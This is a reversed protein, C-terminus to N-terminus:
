NKQGGGGVVDVLAISRGALASCAGAPANPSATMVSVTAKQAPLEAIFYRVDSLAVHAACWPIQWPQEKVQDADRLYMALGMRSGGDLSNGGDKGGCEAAKCEFLIKGKQRTVQDKYSRLVELSSREPPGVYLLTTREGEVNKTRKPAAVDNNGKNKKGPVWELKSLPWSAEDLSKKEYSLIISGEFRKLVASDASGPKDGTPLPPNAALAVSEVFLLSLISAVIKM